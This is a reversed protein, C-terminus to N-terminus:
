RKSLSPRVKKRGRKDYKVLSGGWYPCENKTKKNKKKKKKKNKRKGWAGVIPDESVWKERQFLKM